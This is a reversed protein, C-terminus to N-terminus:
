AHIYKAANAAAAINPQIAPTLAGTARDVTQLELEVGLTYHKNSTFHQPM